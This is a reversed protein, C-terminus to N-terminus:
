AVGLGRIARARLSADLGDRGAICTRCFLMSGPASGAAAAAAAGAAIAGAALVGDRPIKRRATSATNRRSGGCAPGGAAAEGVGGALSDAGAGSATAEAGVAAGTSTVLTSGLV